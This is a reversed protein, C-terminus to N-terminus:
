KQQHKALLAEVTDYNIEEVNLQEGNVEIVPILLQYNELWEDDTYIDRKELTHPYSIELAALLAEADECLSCVEKTYLIVQM